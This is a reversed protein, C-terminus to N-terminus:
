GKKPNGFGGDESSTKRDHCRKCLGQWNDFEWFLVYDGRHPTKHDLITALEPRINTSCRTCMPHRTLFFKRAHKYRASNLWKKVKPDRRTDYQQRVAKERQKHIPQCEECYGSKHRTTARCLRNRCPKKPSITM